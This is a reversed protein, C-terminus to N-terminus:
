PAHHPVRLRIRIDTAALHKSRGPCVLRQNISTTTGTHLNHGHHADLISIQPLMELHRAIHGSLVLLFRTAPMLM